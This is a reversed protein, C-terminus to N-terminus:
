PFAWAHVDNVGAGSTSALDVAWGGTLFPQQVTANPAPGDVSMYPDTTRITIRRFQVLDFSATVTSRVYVGLEYVGAALGQVAFTFGSTTFQGGFAAGVDSRV